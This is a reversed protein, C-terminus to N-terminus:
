DVFNGLRRKREHWVYYFNCGWGLIGFIQPIIMPSFLDMVPIDLATAARITPGGWPVINMTGAGLAVITALIKRDMKLKNYIPLMAPVTILFHVRGLVM